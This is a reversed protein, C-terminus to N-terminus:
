LIVVMTDHGRISRPWLGIGPMVYVTILIVHQFSQVHDMLSENMVLNCFDEAEYIIFVYSIEIPESAIMTWVITREMPNSTIRYTLGKGAFRILLHGLSLYRFFPKPVKFVTLPNQSKNRWGGSDQVPSSYGFKKFACVVVNKGMSSNSHSSLAHLQGYCSYRCSDNDDAFITYVLLKMYFAKTAKPYNYVIVPVPFKEEFYRELESALDIEWEVKNKFKAVKATEELIAVADTYTVRHLKSKAVM